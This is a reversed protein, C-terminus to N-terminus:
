KGHTPEEKEFSSDTHDFFSHNEMYLLNRDAVNNLDNIASVEMHCGTNTLVYSTCFSKSDNLRQRTFSLAGAIDNGDNSNYSAVGYICVDNMGDATIWITNESIIIDSVSEIDDLSDIMKQLMNIAPWYSNTNARDGSIEKQRFRSIMNQSAKDIIQSVVGKQSQNGSQRCRWTLVKALYAMYQIINCIDADVLEVTSKHSEFHIDFM